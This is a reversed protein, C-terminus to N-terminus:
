TLEAQQQLSQRQCHAIVAVAAAAIGPVELPMTALKLAVGVEELVGSDM